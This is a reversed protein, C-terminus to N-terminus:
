LDLMLQQPPRQGDLLFSLEAILAPRGQYLFSSVDGTSGLRGLVDEAAANLDATTVGPRAISKAAVLAEANIRGAQRMIEIELPSRSYHLYDKKLLGVGHEASISGGSFIGIHSFTDLHALTISRTGPM